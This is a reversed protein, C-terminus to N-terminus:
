RRRNARIWQALDADTIPAEGELFRRAVAAALNDSMSRVVDTSQGAKGEVERVTEGGLTAEVLRRKADVLSAVHEDVTDKAQLFTIEVHKTQTLRHIRDEAQEEQAPVWYRQVFLAKRARTLTVGIGLARTAILVDVQGSQFAQVTEFRKKHPMSGDVTVVRRVRGIKTALAALVAKHEVWVVVPERQDMVWQVAQPVKLLGVLQRLATLKVLANGVDFYRRSAQVVAEVLAARPHTKTPGSVLSDYYAAAWALRRERHDKALYAKIEEEVRDYAARAQKPLEVEVNIRTKRPLQPLVQTKTRRVMWRRLAGGFMPGTLGAFQRVVKKGDEGMVTIERRGSAMAALADTTPFAKPDLMHLPHWLELVRNEIATGSLVLVHPTRHALARAARTRKAKTNKAFHGEDFVITRVKARHAQWALTPLRAWSVIYVTQPGPRPLDGAGVVVPQLHPAWGKIEAAWNELVAAPCVVMAPFPRLGSQAGAVLALITQCTKGLGPADGLYARLKALVMYAAGIKQYELPQKGDPWTLPVELAQTRWQAPISALSAAQSLAELTNSAKPPGQAVAAEDPVLFALRLSDALVIHGERDLAAVLKPLGDLVAKRPKALPGDAPVTVVIKDATAGHDVTWAGHDVGDLVAVFRNIGPRCGKAVLGAIRRATEPDKRTGLAQHMREIIRAAAPSVAPQAQAM